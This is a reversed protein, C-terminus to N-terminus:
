EVNEVCKNFIEMENINGHEVHFMKAIPQVLYSEIVEREVATIFVQAEQKSLVAMLKSRSLVDLESPLDDILYIPRKNSCCNLLAGQALIMACVFLKQQGRSLIDKAPIGKIIIRLDARHPGMQTYGLQMDRDISNELVQQYTQNENWGRQYSIELNQLTLLDAITDILIPLLRQCYENRFQDMLQANDALEKTWIELEKKPAHSRLAANRQKLARQYQKWVRMFDNSFYFVGWDLYKRRFIPGSDLYHYCNSNVLLVPTLSALESISHADKGAIRMKVDGTIEREIGIPIKQNSQALIQAFISFSDSKNNVIRDIKLSRFSRGTSLYYIAELLSTKGSGNLGYFFNIGKVVPELKTSILNRFNAVDLRTFAM